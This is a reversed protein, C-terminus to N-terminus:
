GNTAALVVPLNKIRTLSRSTPEAIAANAGYVKLVHELAPIFGSFIRRASSQAQAQKQAVASPSRTELYSKTSQDILNVAMQVIATDHIQDIIINKLNTVSRLSRYSNLQTSALAADASGQAESKLIDFLFVFSQASPTEGAAQIALTHQQSSREDMMAGLLQYFIPAAVMGTQYFQILKAVNEPNPQGLVLKAWDDFSIPLDKNSDPQVPVNMVQNSNNNDFASMPERADKSDNESDLQNSFENRSAIEDAKKSDRGQKKKKKLKETAKAALDELKKGQTVDYSGKIVEKAADLAALKFGASAQHNGIYEQLRENKIAEENMAEDSVRFPKVDFGKMSFAIEKSGNFSISGIIKLKQLAFGVLVLIALVIYIRNTFKM